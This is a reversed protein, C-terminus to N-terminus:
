INLPRDAPPYLNGRPHRRHLPLPTITTAGECRPTTATTITPATTPPPPLRPRTVSLRRCPPPSSPSSAPTWSRATSRCWWRTARLPTICVRTWLCPRCWWLCKLDAPKITASPQYCCTIGDSLSSTSLTREATSPTWSTATPSRLVLFCRCSVASLFFFLDLNNNFNVAVTWKIQQDGCLCNLRVPNRVELHSKFM